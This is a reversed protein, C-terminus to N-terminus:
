FHATLETQHGARRVQILATGGEPILAVAAQLDAARTIPLGNVRTVLDNAKLGAKAAVSGPTVSMIGVGSFRTVLLVEVDFPPPLHAIQEPTVCLYDAQASVTILTGSERLDAVFARKGQAACAQDSDRTAEETACGTTLLVLMMLGLCRRM